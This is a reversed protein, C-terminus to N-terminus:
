MMQVTFLFLIKSILTYFYFTQFVKEEEQSCQLFCLSLETENENLTQLNLSFDM